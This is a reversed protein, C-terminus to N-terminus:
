IYRLKPFNDKSFLTSTDNAAVQAIKEQLM